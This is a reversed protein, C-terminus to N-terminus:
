PSGHDERAKKAKTGPTLGLWETGRKEGEGSFISSMWSQRKQCSDVAGKDIRTATKVLWTNEKALSVTTRLLAGGPQRLIGPSEDLSAIWLLKLPTESLADTAEFTIRVGLESENATQNPCEDSLRVHLTVDQIVRERWHLQEAEDITVESLAVEPVGPDLSDHLVALPAKM